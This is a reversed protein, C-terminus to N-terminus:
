ASCPSCSWCARRRSLSPTPVRPPRTAPRRCLKCTSQRAWGNPAPRNWVSLQGAQAASLLRMVAGQLAQQATQGSASLTDAILTIAPQTGGLMQASFDAPLILAAVLEGKQVRGEADSLTAVTVPRIAASAELIPTLKQGLLGSDLIVVGVPLRPDAPAAPRLALGMFLTFVMPMVLLFILARRDRLIQRLDKLMLDVTRM